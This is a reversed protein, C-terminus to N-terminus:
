LGRTIGPQKMQEPHDVGFQRFRTILEDIQALQFDTCGDTVCLKRYHELLPLALYDRARFLCLPESQPIIIGNGTKVIVAEFQGGEAQVVDAHHKLDIVRM